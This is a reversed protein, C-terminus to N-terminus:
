LEHLVPVNTNRDTNSILQVDYVSITRIYIWHPSFSWSSMYLRVLFAVRRTSVQGGATGHMKRGEKGYTNVIYLATVRKNHRYDFARAGGDQHGEYGAIRSPDYAAIDNVQAESKCFPLIRMAVRQVHDTASILIWKKKMGRIERERHKHHGERPSQVCSRDHGSADRDFGIFALNPRM